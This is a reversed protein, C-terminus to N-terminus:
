NFFLFGVDEEKLLKEGTDKRKMGPIVTKQRM